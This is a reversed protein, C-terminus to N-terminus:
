DAVNFVIIELWDYSFFIVSMSFKEYLVVSGDNKELSFPKYQNVGLDLRNFSIFNSSSFIKMETMDPCSSHAGILSHEKLYPISLASLISTYTVVCSLFIWKVSIEPVKSSSAQSFIRENMMSSQSAFSSVEALTRETSSCTFFAMSSGNPVTMSIVVSMKEFLPDMFFFIIAPKHAIKIAEPHM